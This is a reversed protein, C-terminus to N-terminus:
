RRASLVYLICGMLMMLSCPWYVLIRERLTFVHDIYVFLQLYLSWFLGAILMAVGIVRLLQKMKEAM